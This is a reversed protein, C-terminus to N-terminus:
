AHLVPDGADQQFVPWRCFEQHGGEPGGCLVVAPRAQDARGSVRQCRLASATALVGNANISFTNAGSKPIVNILMGSAASEASIGGTELSTEEAFAPNPLYGTSGGTGLPALINLGDYTVKVGAKGHFTSARPGNSRYLGSSGGVDPTGSVGPTLTVLNQLGMSGSPLTALLETSVVRQQRVNQTDVLPASGSVTITEELAGVTMDANVTATFGATLTIGERRFTNFGAIAFTVTYTGPRLDAINYRGEIDSVATRTKEILAPSAAEVTAGPLVAGSTDRVVGAIGSAQQAAATAPLLVCWLVMFRRVGDIRARHMM